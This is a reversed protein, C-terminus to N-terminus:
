ARQPRLAPEAAPTEAADDDLTRDRALAKGVAWWIAGAMLIAVYGDIAYHYGLHVSGIQIIVVFVAMLWGLLRDIRRWALYSVVTAAVHMSPMASIGRGVVEDPDVYSQWLIDQIGLAWIRYHQDAERLYAMLDAFPDAAGTYLAYFCPGVSSFITAAVNGVLAWTLVMSVLFQVRLRPETVAFAFFFLSGYLVFFWIHYFFNISSSVLPYGFIPQLLEWPHYGGHLWLDWRMFTEDWAFPHIAPILIKMSTFISTFIPVLILVQLGTIIRTPTFIRCIADLLYRTLAPPRVRVMVHLIYGVAFVVFSASYILLMPGVYARIRIRDQFGFFGAALWAAAAFALVVTIFWRNLLLTRFFVPSVRAGIASVGTAEMM